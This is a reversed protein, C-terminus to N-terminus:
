LDLEVADAAHIPRVDVACVREHGEDWVGRPVGIRQLGVDLGVLLAKSLLRAREHGPDM